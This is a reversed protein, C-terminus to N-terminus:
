VALTKEERNMRIVSYTEIIVVVVTCKKKREAVYLTHGYRLYVSFRVLHDIYLYLSGWDFQNNHHLLCLRSCSDHNRDM